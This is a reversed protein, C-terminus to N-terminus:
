IYIRKPFEKFGLVGLCLPEQLSALILALGVPFEMEPLVLPVLCCQDIPSLLIKLM